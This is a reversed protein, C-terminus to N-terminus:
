ASVKKASTTRLHWCVWKEAKLKDLGRQMFRRFMHSHKIHALVPEVEFCSRKRKEIGRKTNLRKVAQSKLRRYAHNVEIVRNGKQKHCQKKM